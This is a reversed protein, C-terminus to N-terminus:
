ACWHQRLASVDLCGVAKYAVLWSVSGTEGGSFCFLGVFLFILHALSQVLHTLHISLLSNNPFSPPALRTAISYEPAFVDRTGSSSTSVKHKVPVGCPHSCCYPVFLFIQFVLPKFSPFSQSLLVLMPCSLANCELHLSTSPVARAM